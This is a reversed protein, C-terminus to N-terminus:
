SRRGTIWLLVFNGDAPCARRSQSGKRDSNLRSLGALDCIV